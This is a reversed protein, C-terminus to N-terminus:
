QENEVQSLKAVVKTHYSSKNQKTKVEKHLRVGRAFKVTKWFVIIEIFM